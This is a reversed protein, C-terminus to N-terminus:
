KESCKKRAWDYIMIFLFGCLSGVTNLLLDDVDFSGVRTMLQIIEVCLSLELSLLVTLFGNKCKTFIKPLFIGLPVFVGINGIVNWLFLRWSGTRLGFNWYRGIEHFLTLNYRYEAHEERGFSSAYFLIYALLLLYAAFCVWWLVKNRKKNADM